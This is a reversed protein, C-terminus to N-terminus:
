QDPKRIRFADAFSQVASTPREYIAKILTVPKTRYMEELSSVASQMEATKPSYRYGHAGGGASPATTVFGGAVLEDLRATVSAVPTHTVGAVEGASWTRTDDGALALLVEVHEMTALHRALLDRVDQPIPEM